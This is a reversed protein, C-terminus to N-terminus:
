VDSFRKSILFFWQKYFESDTLPIMKFDEGRKSSGTPVFIHSQGCERRIIPEIVKVVKDGKEFVYNELRKGDKRREPDLYFKIGNDKLKSQFKEFEIQTKRNM